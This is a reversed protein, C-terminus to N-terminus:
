AGTRHARGTRHEGATVTPHHRRGSPPTEPHHRMRSGPRPTPIHPGIPHVPIPGAGALPTGDAAAPSYITTDGARRGAKDTRPLLDGIEVDLATAIQQLDNLTIETTGTLRYSVWSRSVGLKAALEKGTSRNRALIARIEGAAYDSLTQTNEM